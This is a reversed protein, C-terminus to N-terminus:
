GALPVAWADPLEADGPSERTLPWPQSGPEPGESGWHPECALLLLAGPPQQFHLAEPGECCPPCKSTLPIVVTM